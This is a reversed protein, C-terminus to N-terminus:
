DNDEIFDGASPSLDLSFQQGPCLKAMLSFPQLEETRLKKEELGVMENWKMEFSSLYKLLMFGM